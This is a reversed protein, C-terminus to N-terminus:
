TANMNKKSYDHYDERMTSGSKRSLQSIETSKKEASHEEESSPM